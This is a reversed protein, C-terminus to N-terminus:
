FSGLLDVVVARYAQWVETGAPNYERQGLRQYDEVVLADGSRGADDEWSCVTGDHRLTEIASELVTLAADSAAVLYAASGDRGQIVARREYTGLVMRAAGSEGVTRLSKVAQPRPGWLWLHGGSGFIDSGGVNEAM